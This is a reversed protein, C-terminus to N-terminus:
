RNGHLFRQATITELYSILWSLRVDEDDADVKISLINVNGQTNTGRGSSRRVRSFTFNWITWINRLPSASLEINLFQIWNLETVWNHGVRKHGWSRCCVLSGQGDGVRPGQEFEHGDLQHHWGVMNHEITGKEEQRWDILKGYSIIPIM